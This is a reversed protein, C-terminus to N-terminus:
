ISWTCVEHTDPNTLTQQGGHTGPQWAQGAGAIGRSFHSIAFLLTLGRLCLRESGHTQM